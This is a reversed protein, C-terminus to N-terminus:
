RLMEYPPVTILFVEDGKRVFQVESLGFSLHNLLGQPMQSVNWIMNM